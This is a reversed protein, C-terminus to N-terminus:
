VAVKLNKRKRSVQRQMLAGFGLALGSGALTIPEPVGAVEFSGAYTQYKVPFVGLTVRSDTFNGAINLRFNDTQGYGLGTDSGGSCNPGVYACIDIQKFGGAFTQQGGNLISAQKFVNSDGTANVQTLTSNAKADPAVGFGFATIDARGANPFPKVTTNTLKIDLVLQSATLQIVEMIATASLTIPSTGGDNDKQGAGLYWYFPDLVRGTDTAGNLGVTYYKTTPDFTVSYAQAAAPKLVLPATICGLGLLCSLLAKKM